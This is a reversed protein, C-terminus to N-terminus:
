KEPGETIVNLSRSLRPYDGGKLTLQPAIKIGDAVKIGGPWASGCTRPSLIHDKQLPSNNQSQSNCVPNM